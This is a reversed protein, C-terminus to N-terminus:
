DLIMAAAIAALVLGFLVGPIIIGGHREFVTRPRASSVEDEIGKEEVDNKEIEAQAAPAQRGSARDRRAMTEEM